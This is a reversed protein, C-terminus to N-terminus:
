QQQRHSGVGDRRGGGGDGAAQGPGQAAGLPGAGGGPADSGGRQQLMHMHIHIHTYKLMDILCVGVPPVGACGAMGAIGRLAYRFSRAGHELLLAVMRAHGAQAALQLASWPEGNQKSKVKENINLRHLPLGPYQGGQGQGQQRQEQQERQLRRRELLLAVLEMDNNAAALHLVTHGASDVANLDLRCGSNTHQTITSYLPSQRWRKKRGGLKTKRM